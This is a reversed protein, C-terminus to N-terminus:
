KHNRDLFYGATHYPFCHCKKFFICSVFCQVCSMSAESGKLAPLKPGWVTRRIAMLQGMTNEQIESVAQFRKAKFLAKLKPFLWLGCTTLDPSYPPQTVQTIQYKVLFRQVFHSACTSVNNHHLQWDGTAWLQLRRFWGFLKQLPNVCFKICIGQEVQQWKSHSLWVTCMSVWCHRTGEIVLVTFDANNM